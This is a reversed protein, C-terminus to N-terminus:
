QKLFISQLHVLLVSVKIGFHSMHPELKLCDVVLLKYRNSPASTHNSGNAKPRKDIFDWTDQPIYSVDSMYVMFDGFIFGFCTYPRLKATSATPRPSLAPKSIADPLRSLLTNTLSSHPGLSEISGNQSHPATHNPNSPLQKRPQSPSAAGSGGPTGSPTPM